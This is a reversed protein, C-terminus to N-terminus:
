TRHGLTDGTTRLLYERHSGWNNEGGDNASANRKKNRNEDVNVTLSPAPLPREGLRITDPLLSCADLITGSRM